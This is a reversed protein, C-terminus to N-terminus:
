EKKMKYWVHDSTSEAVRLRYRGNILKPINEDDIDVTVVIGYPPDDLIKVTGQKPRVTINKRQWIQVEIDKETYTKGKTEFTFSYEDRKFHLFSERGSLLGRYTNVEIILYNKFRDSHETYSVDEVRPSCAFCAAVLIILTSVRLFIFQRPM